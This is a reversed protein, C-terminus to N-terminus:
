CFHEVIGNDTIGFGIVKYTPKLIATRHAPSNMLGNHLYESSYGKTDLALNESPEACTPYTEWVYEYGHRGDNPSVHGQYGYKVQDEAKRQASTNLREDLTLPALGNDARAKNTLALLEARTPTSVPVTIPVSSTTAVPRNDVKPTEPKSSPLLVIVIAILAILPIVALMYRRM